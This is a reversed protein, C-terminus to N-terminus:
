PCLVEISNSASTLLHASSDYVNAILVYSGCPVHNFNLWRTRPAHEDLQEDSRSYFNDGDLVFVAYRNKPSQDIRIQARFTAPGFLAHPISIVILALAAQELKRRLSGM